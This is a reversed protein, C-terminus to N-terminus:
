PSFQAVLLSIEEVSMANTRIHLHSGTATAPNALLISAMVAAASDGTGAAAAILNRAVFLAISLNRALLPNAVRIQIHGVYRLEGAGGAPNPVYPVPNLSVFLQEAPLVINLGMESLLQNIFTRPDELWCSIIAGRRFENFGEPILTGTGSHFPDVPTDCLSTAVLAENRNMSVSIMGTSSHWYRDGTRSRRGRWHRSCRMATRARGSPYNGHAALRFRTGSPEGEQIYIAAMASHTSNLIRQFHRDSTDMGRFSINDILPRSNEVDIFIYAFGGPELPIFVAEDEMGPMIPPATRCSLLLMLALFFVPPIHALPPFYRKVGGTTKDQGAQAIDM